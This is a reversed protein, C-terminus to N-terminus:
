ESFLEKLAKYEGDTLVIEKGSCKLTITTDGGKPDIFELNFPNTCSEKDKDYMSSKTNYMCDRCLVYLSESDAIEGGVLKCYRM